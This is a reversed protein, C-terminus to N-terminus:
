GNLDEAIKQDICNNRYTPKLNNDATPTTAATITAANQRTSYNPEV